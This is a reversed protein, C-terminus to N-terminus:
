STLARYGSAINKHGLKEREVNELIHTSRRIHEREINLRSERQKGPHLHRESSQKKENEL